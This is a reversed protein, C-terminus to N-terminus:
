PNVKRLVPGQDDVIGRSRSIGRLEQFEPSNLWADFDDVRSGPGRLPSGYWEFYYSSMDERCARAQAPELYTVVLAQWVLIPYEDYFSNYDMLHALEHLVDDPKARTGYVVLTRGDKRVLSAYGPPSGIMGDPGVFTTSRITKTACIRSWADSENLPVLPVNMARAVDAITMGPVLGSM